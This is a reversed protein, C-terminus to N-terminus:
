IHFILNHFYISTSLAPFSFHTTRVFYLFIFYSFNFTFCSLNFVLNHFYMNTSLFPFSFHTTRVFADSESSSNAMGRSCGMGWFVLCDKLPSPKFSICKRFYSFIFFIFYSFNFIFDLDLYLPPTQWGAVAVWEEFSWVIKWSPINSLFVNQLPFMQFFYM